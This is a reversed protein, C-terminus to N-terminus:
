AGGIVIVGARMIGFADAVWLIALVALVAIVIWRVPEPVPFQGLAWWAIAIILILGILPVIAIHM